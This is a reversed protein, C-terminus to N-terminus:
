LFFLNSETRTENLTRKAKEMLLASFKIKEKNRNNLFESVKHIEFVRKFITKKEYILRERLSSNSTAKFCQKINRLRYTLSDVEILLNNIISESERM